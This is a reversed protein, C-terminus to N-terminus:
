KIPVPLVLVTFTQDLQHLCIAVDVFLYKGTVLLLWHETGAALEVKVFGLEKADLIKM